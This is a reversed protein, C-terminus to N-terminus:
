LCPAFGLAGLMPSFGFLLSLWRWWLFCSCRRGIFWHLKNVVVFSGMIGCAIAVLLGAIFANQMFDFSMMELFM